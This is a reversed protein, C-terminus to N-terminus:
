PQRLLRFGVNRYRDDPAAGRYASRCYKAGSYWSGGRFVRWSGSAPGRPDTVSGSPYSGYWDLCWEYVNGSMDYLDWANPAKQAVPHTRDGSNYTYWGIANLNPDYGAGAETIGGNYFATTSGARAAYEWEAETPLSYIGEGRKNMETIFTQVDNWTVGEVPCTPCGSFYSPNSGMVAAWQDQTVETTQMYFPQTLTVQHQPGEDTARSPEDSPSGMTFTGAPLLVFTQGLSNTYTSSSVTTTFWNDAGYTTGGGNAAALRYHYTTGSSLGTLSASASVSSTGSGAATSTTTSGYGTTTGYQFYYTTEAGNPNVTGTLTASTSTVSTASGTTVTPPTVAIDIVFHEINSYGSSGYSNRAQVAVYFAAGDWLAFSGGMQTGMDISGIYSASPYPAYFLTYGSAGAASTWSLSLTIGSTAISLRPPSPPMDYSTLEYAVGDRILKVWGIGQALYYTYETIDPKIVLWNQYFNTLKFEYTTYAGAPVTTTFPGNVTITYNDIGTGRYAGNKFVMRNWSCKYTEGLEVAAPLFEQPADPVYVSEEYIDVYRAGYYFLRGAEYKFFQNFLQDTDTTGTSGPWNVEFVNELIYKGYPGYSGYSMTLQENCNFEASYGDKLIWYDQTVITKAFSVSAGLLWIAVSWLILRAARM